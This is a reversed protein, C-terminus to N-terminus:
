VNPTAKWTPTAKWMAMIPSPLVKLKACLSIMVLGLIHIVFWGMPTHYPEHSLQLLAVNLQGTWWPANASISTLCFSNNTSLWWGWRCFHHGHQPSKSPGKIFSVTTLLRNPHRYLAICFLLFRVELVRLWSHGFHADPNANQWLLFYKQWSLSFITFSGRKNQKPSGPHAPV